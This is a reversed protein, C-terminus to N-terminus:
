YIKDFLDPKRFNKGIYSNLGEGVIALRKMEEVHAQGTKIYSYRYIVPNGFFRVEIYDTSKLLGILLIFFISRICKYILTSEFLIVNSAAVM